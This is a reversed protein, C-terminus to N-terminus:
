DRHSQPLSPDFGGQRGEEGAASCAASNSPPFPPLLPPRTLDHAVCLTLRSCFASVKSYAQADDPTIKLADCIHREAADMDGEADRDRLNNGLCHLVYATDSNRPPDRALYREYHAISAGTDGSRTCYLAYERLALLFAPELEARAQPCQCEQEETRFAQLVARLMESGKRVLPQVHVPLTMCATPNRRVWADIQRSIQVAQTYLRETDTKWPGRCLPCVQPCGAKRMGEVCVRCFRHSCPLALPQFLKDLCIACEEGHAGVANDAPATAASRVADGAAATVAAEAKVCKVRHGAKWAITQCEASCYLAAQCKGCRKCAGEKGCQECRPMAAAAAATSSRRSLVLLIFL